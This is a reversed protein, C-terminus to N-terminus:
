MIALGLGTLSELKTALDYEKQVLLCRPLFEPPRCGCEQGSGIKDKEFQSRGKISRTVPVYKDRIENGSQIIAVQPSFASGGV